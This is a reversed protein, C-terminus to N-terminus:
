GSSIQYGSFRWVYSADGIVFDNSIYSWKIAGLATGQFMNLSTSPRPRIRIGKDRAWDLDLFCHSAGPDYLMKALSGELTAPYFLQGTAM